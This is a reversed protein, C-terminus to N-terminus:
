NLSFSINNDGFDIFQLVDDNVFIPTKDGYFVTSIVENYYEIAKEVEMTDCLLEIIASKSYVLKNGFVGVIADDFDELYFFNHEPYLETLLESIDFEDNFDENNEM